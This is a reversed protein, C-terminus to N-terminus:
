VLKAGDEHIHDLVRMDVPFPSAAQYSFAMNGQVEQRYLDSLFSKQEPRSPRLGHSPLLIFQQLGPQNAM